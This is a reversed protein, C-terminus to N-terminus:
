SNCDAQRAPGKLKVGINRYKDFKFQNVSVNYGMECFSLQHIETLM